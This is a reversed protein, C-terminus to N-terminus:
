YDFRKKADIIGVLARAYVCAANCTHASKATAPSFPNPKIIATVLQLFKAQLADLNQDVVASSIQGKRYAVDLQDMYQNALPVANCLTNQELKVAAAHHGTALAFATEFVSIAAGVIPLAKVATGALSLGLQAGGVGLGGIAGAEQVVGISGLQPPTGCDGPSNKYYDPIHRNTIAGKLFDIDKQRFPASSTPPGILTDVEAALWSQFSPDNNGLKTITPPPPPPAVIPAPLPTPFVGAPVIAPVVAAPLPPTITPAAIPPGAQYHLQAFQGNSIPSSATLGWPNGALQAPTYYTGATGPLITTGLESSFFPTGLTVTNGFYDTTVPGALGGGADIHPANPNASATLTTAVTVGERKKLAYFLVVAGGAGVILGATKM